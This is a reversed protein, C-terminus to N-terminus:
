RAYVRYQNLRKLTYTPAPLLPCAAPPPPRPSCPAPRPRHPPPFRTLPPIKCHTNLPHVRARLARPPAPRHTQCTLRSLIVGLTLSLNVM